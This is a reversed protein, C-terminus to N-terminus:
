FFVARCVDSTKEGRILDTACVNESMKVGSVLLSTPEEDSIFCHFYFLFGPSVMLWSKHWVSM